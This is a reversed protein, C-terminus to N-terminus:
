TLKLGLIKVVADFVSKWAFCDRACFVAHSRAHSNMARILAASAVILYPLNLNAQIVQLDRAVPDDSWTALRVERALMGLAPFTSELLWAEDRTPRHITTRSTSIGM